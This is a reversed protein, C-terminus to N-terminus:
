RGRGQVLRIRVEVDVHRALLRQEGRVVDDDELV